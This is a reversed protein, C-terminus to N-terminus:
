LAEAKVHPVVELGAAATQELWIIIIDCPLNGM